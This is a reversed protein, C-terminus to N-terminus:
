AKEGDDGVASLFADANIFPIAGYRGQLYGNELNEHRRPKFDTLPYLTSNGERDKETFWIEDRRLNHLLNTDHTNFILQAGHPNRSTDNFLEIIRTSLLPHLSADLEDVCIAGGDRLAAVVPGLLAFYALTGNSESGQDFSFVDGSIRHMMHAEPFSLDPPPAPLEKAGGETRMFEILRKALDPVQRQEVNVGAIGLDAGAVFEAISKRSHDDGCLVTTAQLLLTRDLVFRVSNSFWSYIPSLTPHNNQAAASLFLSNQRTLAEITRNEGSLKSGFSIPEGSRRKFWTQWKGNPRVRLWEEVIIKADLNFGYRHRIGDVLFDVEFSSAAGAAARSVFVNSPISGDPAWSRHSEKVAECMFQFARIVNTKGSANAGYIAAVPLVREKLGAVSFTSEPSDNLSSAVLSLDAEDRFSRYNSFRFRLLM